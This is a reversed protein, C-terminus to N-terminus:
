AVHQPPSSNHYTVVEEGLARLAEEDNLIYPHTQFVEEFVEHYHVPATLLGNEELTFKAHMTNQLFNMFGADCRSEDIVLTDHRLEYAFVTKMEFCDDRLTQVIYM